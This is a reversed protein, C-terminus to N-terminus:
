HGRVTAKPPRFGDQYKIQARPVLPWCRTRTREPRWSARNERLIVALDPGAQPATLQEGRLAQGAKGPGGPSARMWGSWTVSSLERYTDSQRKRNMIDILPKVFNVRM